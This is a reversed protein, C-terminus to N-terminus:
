WLKSLTHSRRKRKEPVLPPMPKSLLRIVSLCRGSNRSSSTRRSSTESTAIPTVSQLQALERKSPQFSLRAVVKRFAKSAKARKSSQHDIDKRKSRIKRLSKGFPSPSWADIISRRIPTNALSPIADPISHSDTDNVKNVMSFSVDPPPTFISPTFKTTFEKDIDAEPLDSLKVSPGTAMKMPDVKVVPVSPSVPNWSDQSYMSASSTPTSVPSPIVTLVASVIQPSVTYLAPSDETYTLEAYSMKTALGAELRFTLSRQAVLPALSISLNLAKPRYIGPRLQHEM